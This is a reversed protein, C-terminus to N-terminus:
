LFLSTCQNVIDFFLFYSEGLGTRYQESERSKIDELDLEKKSKPRGKRRSAQEAALEDDNRTLWVDRILEHLEELTLVGEDPLSHYFFGSVDALVQDTKMTQSLSNSSGLTGDKEKRKTKLNQLKEKRLAQRALQGAKRSSPHFVKEKKGGSTKKAAKAPAM